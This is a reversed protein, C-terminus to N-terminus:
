SVLNVGNDVQVSISTSCIIKSYIFVNRCADFTRIRYCYYNGLTNIGTINERNGTIDYLDYFGVVDNESVELTYISEEGLTYTLLTSGDSSENNVEVSHLIPTVINDITTITKTNTGCNNVANNYLGTVVIPYDGATGFDFESSTIGPGIVESNTATFNVRYKDYNSDTIEVRVTHGSCNHIEFEPPAPNHVTIKLSDEKQPVNAGVLQVLYYVGPTSYTFNKDTTPVGSKDEYWYQRTTGSGFNDLETISVDLPACGTANQVSFRGMVSTTQAKATSALLFMVLAFVLLRSTTKLTLINKILAVSRNHFQM